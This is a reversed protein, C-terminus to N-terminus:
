GPVAAGIALTDRTSCNFSNSAAVLRTRVGFCRAKSELAIFPITQATRPDRTGRLLTLRPIIYRGCDRRPAAPGEIPEAQRARALKARGSRNVQGCM